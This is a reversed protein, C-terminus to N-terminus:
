ARNLLLCFILSHFQVLVHVRVVDSSVSLPSDADGTIAVVACEAAQFLSPLPLLETTRGSHSLIIVQLM